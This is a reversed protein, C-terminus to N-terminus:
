LDGEKQGSMYLGVLRGVMVALYLQGAVAQVMSLGRALESRPVIDGYGVTTQTIFSFYTGAAMKLQGGEPLFYADHWLAAVACHLMAFLIGTLLYVSLASYLLEANVRTSSMAVRVADIGAVVGLVVLVITSAAIVRHWDVSGAVLRVAFVAVLLILLLHSLHRRRMGVLAAGLSVSILAVMPTQDFGLTALLPFGVLTLLLTFFLFRYRHELWYAFASRVQHLLPPRASRIPM